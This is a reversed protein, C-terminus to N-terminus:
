DPNGGAIPVMLQRAIVAGLCIGVANALLDNVSMFRGPVMSQLFELMASYALIALCALLYHRASRVARHALLAFLCYVLLHGLKDWSGLAATDGPRLSVFAVLLAYLLLVLANLTQM